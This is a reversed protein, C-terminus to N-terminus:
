KIRGMMKDGKETLAILEQEKEKRFKEFADGKLDKPVIFTKSYMFVGKNFPAALMFRDWTKFVKARKVSFSALLVPTGTKQALLLMGKSMHQYPGKPGDPPTGFYIKQTMLMRQLELFAKVGGGETVKDQTQKQARSGGIIRFGMKELLKGILRGDRHLSTLAALPPKKTYFHAFYPIMMLRGHWFLAVVSKDTALIKDRFDKEGVLKFSSTKYVFKIYWSLITAILNQVFISKGIKKIAKKIKRFM